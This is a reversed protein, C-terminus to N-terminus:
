FKFNAYWAVKCTIVTNVAQGQKTYEFELRTVINRTAICVVKLLENSKDKFHFIFLCEAADDDTAPQRVAWKPSGAPPASTSM